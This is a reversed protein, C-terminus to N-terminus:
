ALHAAAAAAPLMVEFRAGRGPASEVVIRGHHAEVIGHCLSLGLGAGATSKTTFFPDFIRERIEPPIGRGSDAVHLRVADGELSCLGVELRGGEPMADVANDILHSVLEQVQTPHGQVLPVDDGLDTKLAIRREALRRQQAEVAARVPQAVAFARGAENREREALRKLDDVTRVIKRGEEM